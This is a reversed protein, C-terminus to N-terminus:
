PLDDLKGEELAKQVRKLSAELDTRGTFQVALEYRGGEFFPPPKIRTRDDLGLGKVQESFARETATLAPFREARLSRRWAEGKQQPTLNERRLLDFIGTKRLLTELPVSRRRIIEQLGELLEKQKQFGFRLSLCLTLLLETWPQLREQTRWIGIKRGLYLDAYSIGKR